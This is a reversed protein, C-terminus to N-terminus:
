VESAVLDALVVLETQTVLGFIRAAVRGEADLLITTPITRPGVGRFRSAFANDPDYLHPYAVDFERVHALANASSDEINVGVFAVEDAPLADHADNLDPQEARCPGCWSAWFNVVVVRGRLDELSLEEDESGLVTVADTPAAEREDAPIPCLGPRVGPIREDCAAASSTGGCAVLVLSLVLILARASAVSTRAHSRLPLGWPAKTREGV